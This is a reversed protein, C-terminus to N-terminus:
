EISYAAFAVWYIGIMLGIFFSGNIYNDLFALDIVVILLIIM